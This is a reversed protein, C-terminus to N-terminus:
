VPITSVSALLVTVVIVVDMRDDNRRTPIPEIVPVRIVRQAKVM